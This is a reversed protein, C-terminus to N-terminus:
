CWYPIIITKDPLNHLFKIVAKNWQNESYNVKINKSDKVDFYNLDVDYKDTKVNENLGSDNYLVVSKNFPIEKLNVKCKYKNDKRGYLGFCDFLNYERKLNLKNVGLWWSLGIFDENYIKDIIILELDIGM